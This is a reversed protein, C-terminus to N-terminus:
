CSKDNHRISEIKYLENSMLLLEDMVAKTIYLEDENAGTYEPAKTNGNFV